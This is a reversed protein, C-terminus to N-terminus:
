TAIEINKVVPVANRDDTITCTELDVTCAGYLSREGIGWGNGLLMSTYQGALWDDLFQRLHERNSFSSPHMIGAARIRDMLGDDFLRELIADADLRGGDTMEARDIWEFGEGNGGDYRCYLRRVGAKRLEPIVFAFTVKSRKEHEARDWPPKRPIPALEVGQQPEAVSFWVPEAAGGFEPPPLYVFEDARPPPEYEPDDEPWETQTEDYVFPM